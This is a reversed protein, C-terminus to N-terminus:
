NLEKSRNQAAKVAEAIIDELRGDMLVTLAAETTGGPSTVNERLKGAPLADQAEALAGAGIVTQRALLASQEEPLGAKKAANTLAEIFYFLYAPGSGSIATVADMHSEDDLWLTKGAARMLSEAMGRTKQTVQEKAYLATMGKTIAAPTNPMARVVQVAAPLTERFYQTSKGAAISLVPIDSKLLPNLTDCIRDMIQPKVALVILDAASFDLAAMQEVHFLKEPPAEIRSVGKPDIVQASDVSDTALWSELLAGGMNGCGILIINISM